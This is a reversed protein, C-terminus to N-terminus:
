SLLRPFRFRREEPIIADIVDDALIRGVAVGDELVIVSSRRSSTLVEVIRDIDDDVNVTQSDEDEVDNILSSISATADKAVLLDFLPIDAVYNGDEDVVVVADIDSRHEANERLSNIVDSISEGMPVEILSTTMMGGATDEEYDILDELDAAKEPDMLDLIEQRKEDELDRLAEAAEDPEMNEVIDAAIEPDSQNIIVEIDESDMEEIADAVVEAGLAEILGDREKRDLDSLLDALESPRLRRIGGSSRSARLKVSGSSEDFAAVDGWDIVRKPKAQARIRRMMLRRLLASVGVEVGVLRLAGLAHAVYLESARIVQVGEVDVLQHDLVEKGLIVEGARKAFDRLDVKASRLTIQSAGLIEVKDIDIFARRRGVRVILGTLPPYDVVESWRAVIDDVKGIEGGFQNKVTIGILGSLPVISSRIEAIALVRRARALRLRNLRESPQLQTRNM